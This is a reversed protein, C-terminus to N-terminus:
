RERVDNLTIAKCSIKQTASGSCQANTNQHKVQEENLASYCWAKGTVAHSLGLRCFPVTNRALPLCGGARGLPLLTPLIGTAIHDPDPAASRGKVGAPQAAFPDPARCLGEAQSHPSLFPKGASHASRSRPQSHIIGQTQALKLQRISHVQLPLHFAIKLATHLPALTQLSSSPHTQRDGESSGGFAAKFSKAQPQATLFQVRFNLSYFDQSAFGAEQLNQTERFCKCKTAREFTEM